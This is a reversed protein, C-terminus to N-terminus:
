ATDKTDKFEHHFFKFLMHWSNHRFGCPHIWTWNETTITTGLEPSCRIVWDSAPHGLVAMAMPNGMPLFPHVDVTDMDADAVGYQINGASTVLMHGAYQKTHRHVLLAGIAPVASLEVSSLTSMFQKRKISPISSTRSFTPALIAANTTGEVTIDLLPCTQVERIDLILQRLADDPIRVEYDTEAAVRRALRTFRGVHLKCGQMRVARSQAGVSMKFSNTTGTNEIVVPGDEPSSSDLLQDLSNWTLDNIYCSFKEHTEDKVMCHGIPRVWFEAPRGIMRDTVFLKRHRIAAYMTTAGGTPNGNPTHLREAIPRLLERIFHAGEYKLTLKYTSM